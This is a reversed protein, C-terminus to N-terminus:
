SAEALKQAVQKVIQELFQQYQTQMAQAVRQGESSLDCLCCSCHLCKHWGCVECIAADQRKFAKGCCFCTLIEPPIM